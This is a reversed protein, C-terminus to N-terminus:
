NKGIRKLFNNINVGIGFINPQLVLLDSQEKVKEFFDPSAFKNLFDENRDRTFQELSRFFSDLDGFESKAYRLPVLLRLAEGDELMHGYEGTCSPHCDTILIAPLATYMADYDEYGFDSPSDYNKLYAECISHGWDRRDFGEAIVASDGINQAIRDFNKSLYGYLDENIDGNIVFIYLDVGNEVPISSLSHVRYGM